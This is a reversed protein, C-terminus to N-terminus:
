FLILSSDITTKSLIKLTAALNPRFTVFYTGELCCLLASKRYYFLTLYDIMLLRLSSLPMWADINSPFISTFPRLLVFFHFEFDRVDREM